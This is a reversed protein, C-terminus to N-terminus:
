LPRNVNGTVVISHEQTVNEFANQAHCTPNQFDEPINYLELLLLYKDFSDEEFRTVDYHTQLDFYM